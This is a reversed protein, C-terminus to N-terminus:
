MNIVLAIWYSHKLCVLTYIISSVLLLSKLVVSKPEKILFYIILLLFSLSLKVGIFLLPDVEYLYNMIPNLEEINGTILGVYTVFGDFVNIFALYMFLYFM